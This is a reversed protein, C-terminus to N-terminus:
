SDITRRARDRIAELRGIFEDKAEIAERISIEDPEQLGVSLLLKRGIDNMSKTETFDQPAATEDKVHGFVKAIGLEPSPSPRVAGRSPPLPYAGSGDLWVPM